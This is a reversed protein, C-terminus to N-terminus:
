ESFVDNLLEVAADVIMDLAEPVLKSWFIEHGGRKFADATPIYGVYQNTCHVIYTPYTPSALKIRLGGEVFPEGPLSVFAANGIRFVQIEYDFEPERKWTLHKSWTWAAYCWKTDVRTREVDAWVPRPYEALIRKAEELEKDAVKRLPIKLHKCKWKLVTEDKFTLREIVKKATEALVRGMYTHDRKYDPDFPNWPNINGCAGNLVLVSDASYARRLEEALAGPWDASVVGGYDNNAYVVVPHCTYNVMIAPFHLSDTRFCMVGLEPDIPGELYRIETWGLPRAIPNWFWPMMVTGERTVARRNFAVRGEIGSGVGVQVPTLRENALRISEIIREVAFQSYREDGGRLWDFEEPIDDFDEAVMFHGLSPASHIQIPHIMVGQFDFGFKEAAVKRIQDCYSKTAVCLDLAVICVKRGSSELVLAKSFLPDNVVRAPRRVGINGSLQIGALPTIDVQSVGVKFM